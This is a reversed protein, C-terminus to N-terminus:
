HTSEHQLHLMSFSLMVISFTTALVAFWDCPTSHGYFRRPKVIGVFFKVYSHHLLEFFSLMVGLLILFLLSSLFQGSGEIIVCFQPDTLDFLLFSLM